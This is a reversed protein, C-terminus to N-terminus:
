TVLMPLYDWLFYLLIMEKTLYLSFNVNAVLCNIDASLNVFGIFSAKM